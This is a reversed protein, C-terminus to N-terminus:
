PRSFMAECLGYIGFLILGGATATVLIDGYPWAKIANVAGDMGAAAIPRFFWAGMAFLAGSVMFVFGRATMGIAGLVRMTVFVWQTTDKPFERMYRGVIAHWVMVVGFIFIVAGVGALVWRGMPASALRGTYADQPQWPSSRTGILLGLSSVAVSAAVLSLVLAGLRSITRRKAGIVGFLAQSFRWAAYALFGVAVLAVLAVGYPQLLLRTLASRQTIHVTAGQAVLLAIWGVLM